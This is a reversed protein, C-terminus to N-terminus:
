LLRGTDLYSLAGRLFREKKFGYDTFDSYIEAVFIAMKVKENYDKTLDLLKESLEIVKEKNQLNIANRISYQYALKEYKNNIM